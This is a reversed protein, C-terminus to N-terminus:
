AAEAITSANFTHYLFEGGEIGITLVDGVNIQGSAVLRSLPNTLRNKIARKLDRAGYEKSYGEQIIAEKTETPINLAAGVKVLMKQALDNVVLDFIPHLMEQTLSNFVVQADIRNLFEPTFKRKAAGLATKRLDGTSLDTRAPSVLGFSDSSLSAMERAGVNSTMLIMTNAFSVKKNDGLTLIGKDMIGLLLNWLVDSAKEIEDFLVISLRYDKSHQEDLREQSLLPHTERHGLYGPPSGILKAMEHSHAFEACDIKVLSHEKGSILRATVEAVHTKGVGTPGLFLLNAVPRNTDRFGAEYLTLADLISQVAEDQGIVASRLQDALASIRVGTKNSDLIVPEGEKHPTEISNPSPPSFAPVSPGLVAKKRTV